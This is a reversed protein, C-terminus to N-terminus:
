SRLEQGYQRQYYERYDGSRIPEWWWGNRRYWDVTAAIGESFPVAAKWGLEAATKESSLSYRRDHGPRDKVYQILSEDAGTLEIITRVVDINPLEDPGGINYAEGARGSRLV